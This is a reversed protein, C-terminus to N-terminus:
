RNNDAATTSGTNTTFPIQGPFGFGPMQPANQQNRRGINVNDESRVVPEIFLVGIATGTEIRVTVETEDAIDDLIDRVEDGAESVGASVEQDSDPESTTGTTTGSNSVTISTRGSEAIADAMGSVFAAAAPLMIRKFYHHDVDTAMAPLTTAPDIAVADIDYSIGDIVITDFNLTLLEKQVQFSGLIRSGNLPGGSIQALVPGPSDSNAETLIQAYVIEGAPFLIEEEVNGQSDPQEEISASEKQRLEELWQQDTMSKYGIKLQNKSDLIAQMQTTMASAMNQIAEQRNQDVQATEPAIDRTQQLERQMREEQLKRWRQLPDEEATPEEPAALVGVPAEIPTPLASEGTQQAEETRRENAEKVAEIYAPSAGETGPVTTVDSGAVIMSQDATKDAGGGLMMVAGFIVAAAVVVAGIKFMPNERWLEGLTGGKKKEFNDFSGEDIEINDDDPNNAM